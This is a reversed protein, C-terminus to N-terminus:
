LRIINLIRRKTRNRRYSPLEEHEFTCAPPPYIEDVGESELIHKNYAYLDLKLVNREFSLFRRPFMNMFERGVEYCNGCIGPGFVAVIDKPSVQMNLFVELANRVIGRLSGRWGAHLVAITDQYKSFLFIPYCDATRVCLSIGKCKTILGDGELEGKPLDKREVLIVKSSHVQKLYADCRSHLVTSTIRVNSYKPHKFIWTGKSIKSWM